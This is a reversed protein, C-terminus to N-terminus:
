PTYGFKKLQKRGSVSFWVRILPNIHERWRDIAKKDIGAPGRRETQYSSGVINIEDLMANEFEINLFDCIQRIQKEPETILDEFRVLHYQRPYLQEYKAHLRAADFWFKTIHMVEIPTILPDLLWEPLYSFRVQPGELGKEVKKLKSVIIGRPDRFTHIIKAGPFWELLTPVYYLHTPTKDGLILDDANGGKVEAYSQMVLSFIARESRDSELLRRTFYQKDVSRSLWGWSGFVRRLKELSYLYDILKKVNEDDLLDGFDRLKKKIGVKSFRRLFYTEPSICVQESKNLIERLLTSGTRGCGVIFVKDGKM